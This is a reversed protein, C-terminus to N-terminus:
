AESTEEALDAVEDWEQGRDPAREELDLAHAIQEPLPKYEVLHQTLPSPPLEGAIELVAQSVKDSLARMSRQQGKIYDVTVQPIGLAKSVTKSSHLLLLSLALVSAPDITAAISSFTRRLDHKYCWYGVVPVLRKWSSRPDVLMPKERTKQRHAGDLSYWVYEGEPGKPAFMKRRELIGLVYKSLPMEIPRQRENLSLKKRRRKTGTQLPNILYLGREFDIQDFRMEMVLRDRMGTLLYVRWMDRWWPSMLQDTAIWAKRLHELQLFTERENPAEIKRAAERTPDWGKDEGEIGRYEHGIRYLRSAANLVGLAYNASGAKRMAPQMTGDKGPEVGVQLRGERLASLYDIWFGEKLQDLYKSELHALFRDYTSRMKEGYAPSDGSLEGDLSECLKDYADGLTMRVTGGAKRLKNEAVTKRAKAEAEKFTIVEDGTGIDQVLGLIPREEKEKGDVGVVEIRSIYTRRIKGDARQKGIRVGFGTLVEHWVDISPKTTPPEIGMIDILTRFNQAM